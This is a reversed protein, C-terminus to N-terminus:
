YVVEVYPHLSADSANRSYMRFDRGPDDENEAWLLVGNNSDPNDIWQQVLPTIDFSKWTQIETCVWYDSTTAVSAADADNVGCLPETWNKSGTAKIKTAWDEAWPILVEHVAMVRDICAEPMASSAHAYNFYIWLTAKSIPTGPALQDVDARLLSRKKAYGAHKGVILYEHSGHSAAGEVWTDATISLNLTNGTPPEAQCPVTCTFKDVYCKTNAGRVYQFANAPTITTCVPEWGGGAKPVSSTAYSDVTSWTTGDSSVAIYATDKCGLTFGPTLCCEMTTNSPQSGMDLVHGSMYKGIPDPKKCCCGDTDLANKQGCTVTVDENGTATGECATGVCQDDSTCADGDDCATPVSWAANVCGSVPDCTDKTCPNNDDCSGQGGSGVCAGSQCTAGCPGGDTSGCPLGDTSADPTNTCGTDPACADVTCSNQDDCENATGECQHDANCQDSATCDNGDDCEAGDPMWDVVCGEGNVCSAGSACPPVTCLVPGGGTCTGVHCFDASTCENGDDCQVDLGSLADHKIEGKECYDKTCPNQDDLDSPIGVACVGNECHDGTTCDNENFDCSLGDATDVSGCESVDNEDCSCTDVTCENGDDCPKPSGLCALGDDPCSEDVEPDCAICSDGLTCCDADNCADGAKAPECTVGDVPDCSCVQCATTEVAIAAGGGCTGDVGCTEGETCTDEDDCAEGERPTWECVGEVCAAAMCANDTTCDTDETCSPAVEPPDDVDPQVVEGNGDPVNGGDPQTGNENSGCGGIMLVMTLTTILPGISLRTRTRM